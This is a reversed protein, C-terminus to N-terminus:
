PRSDAVRGIHDLYCAAFRRAAGPGFLRHPYRFTLHLKGATAVTGICLSLPSRAPSSFWLELLDGAEPGFSPAEEMWGLDCLMATDVFRNRTLPQLVVTSQKAWLSLLGARQLGGILAVGSRTRKNRARQVNMAHLAMAPSARERRSTSLRATVSFNAITGRPWRPPRLNAPVLVGIRRGPAGHQLNWDGIALHLAASLVNRETGPATGEVAYATEAATLSVMHYGYGARDTAGDPTLRGPRALRDRLWEVARRVARSPLSTPPPALRVPLEHGALFDLPEPAVDGRYALAIAHLVDMAAVGDAAASNLNLMLVDGRADRALCARLPPAGTVAVPRTMLAVRAADLAGDDGCEAVDLLDGPMAGSAGCLAALVSRLRAEDLTGAVRAEVHVSWAGARADLLAPGAAGPEDDGTIWECNLVCSHDGQRGRLLWVMDRTMGVINHLLARRMSYRSPEDPQADLPSVEDVHAAVRNGDVSIHLSETAVNERLSIMGRHFLRGWSSDRHFRGGADLHALLAVADAITPEAAAAASGTGPVEDAGALRAQLTAAQEATPSPKM